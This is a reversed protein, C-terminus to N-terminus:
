GGMTDYSFNNLTTHKSLIIEDELWVIYRTRDARSMFMTDQTESKYIDRLEERTVSKPIAMIRSKEGNFM